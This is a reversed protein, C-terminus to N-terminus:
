VTQRLNNRPIDILWTLLKRYLTFVDHLYKTSYSLGSKQMHAAAHAGM